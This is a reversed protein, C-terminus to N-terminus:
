KLTLPLVVWSPLVSAPAVAITDLGDCDAKNLTDAVFADRYGEASIVKERGNM